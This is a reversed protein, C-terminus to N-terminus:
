MLTRVGVHVRGLNWGDSINRAWEISVSGLRSPFRIGFGYGLMEQAESLKLREQSDFGIGGDIFIFVAGTRNFYYLAEAQSYVASRFAFEDEFYGRLSGHGGIRYQEAPPLYDEDTFLSVACARAAVAYNGRIPWHAGLALEM